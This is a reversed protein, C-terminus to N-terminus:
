EVDGIEVTHFQVGEIEFDVAKFAQLRRTGFIIAHDRLQEIFQVNNRVAIAPKFTQKSLDDGPGAQRVQLPTSGPITIFLAGSLEEKVEIEDFVCRMLRVFRDLNTTKFGIHHIGVVNGM